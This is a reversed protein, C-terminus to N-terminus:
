MAVPAPTAPKPPKPAAPAAPTRMSNVAAAGGLVSAGIGAVTGIAPLAAAIAPLFATKNEENIRLKADAQKLRANMREEASPGKPMLSGAISAASAVNMGAQFTDMIGASKRRREDTDSSQMANAIFPAAIGALGVANTTAPHSLAGVLGLPKPIAGAGPPAMGALKDEATKQATRLGRLNQEIQKLKLGIYENAAHCRHMRGQDGILDKIGIVFENEGNIILPKGGPLNDVYKEDLYPQVVEGTMSNLAPETHEPKEAMKELFEAVKSLSTPIDHEHIRGTSRKCLTLLEEASLKDLLNINGRSRFGLRHNPIGREKIGKIVLLMLDDAATRDAETVGHTGGVGAAVATYLSPLTVGSIILDIAAQVSDTFTKDAQGAIKMEESKGQNALMLLEERTKDLEQATKRMDTIDMEVIMKPNMPQEFISLKQERYPVAFPDTGQVAVVAAVKQAVSASNGVAAAAQKKAALKLPTPDILEFKFRKDSAQKYLALQVDRNAIESVRDIEHPTLDNKSILDAMKAQMSQGALGARKVEEALQTLRVKASM